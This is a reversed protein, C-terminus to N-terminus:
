YDLVLDWVIQFPRSYKIKNIYVSILDFSERSRLGAALLMREM